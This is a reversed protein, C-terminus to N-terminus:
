ATVAKPVFSKLSSVVSAAAAVAVGSILVPVFWTPLGTAKTVQKVGSTVVDGLYDVVQVPTHLIAFTQSKAAVAKDLASSAVIYPGVLNRKYEESWESGPQLPVKIQPITQPKDRLLKALARLEMLRIGYTTLLKKEDDYLAPLKNKQQQMDLVLRFSKDTMNFLETMPISRAFKAEIQAQAKAMNSKTINAANQLGMQADDLSDGSVALQAQELFAIQPRSTFLGPAGSWKDFTPTSSFGAGVADKKAHGFSFIKM